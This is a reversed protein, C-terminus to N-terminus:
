SRFRALVRIAVSIAAGETAHANAAVLVVRSGDRVIRQGKSDFEKPNPTIEASRQYTTLPVWMLWGDNDVDFVPDPIATIGIAFADESVVILGLAGTPSETSAVQDSVWTVSGRSRTITEDFDGSIVFSGLLLKNGAPVLQPSVPFLGAWTMNQVRRGRPVFARGRRSAM